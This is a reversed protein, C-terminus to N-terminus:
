ANMSLVIYMVTLLFANNLYIPPSNNAHGLLKIPRDTSGGNALDVIVKSDM